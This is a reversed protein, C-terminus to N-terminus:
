YYAFGTEPDVNKYQNKKQIARQMREKATVARDGLMEVEVYRWADPDHDKYKKPREKGSPDSVKQPKWQYSKIYKLGDTVPRTTVFFINPSGPKGTIPHLEEFNPILREQLLDIGWTVKDDGRCSEATVPYLGADYYGQILSYGQVRKASASPDIFFRTNEPERGWRKTKSIIAKAHESTRLKEESYRDMYWSRGFEDGFRWWAATPQTEAPDIGVALTWWDPPRTGFLRRFDNPEVYNYEPNIETYVQGEFGVYEGYFFRKLWDGKYSKKLDDVYDKPLYTNEDTPATLHLVNPDVSMKFQEFLWHSEPPPNGAVAFVLRPGKMRLRGKAALFIDESVEGAEDIGIYGVTQGQLKQPEDATRFVMISGNIFELENHTRNYAKDWSMGKLLEVPMIQRLVPIINDRFMNYTPSIILLRNEAYEMAAYIADAMLVYTKGSGLGGIYAKYKCTTTLFLKQKPLWPDAKLNVEAM